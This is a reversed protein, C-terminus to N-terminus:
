RPVTPCGYGGRRSSRSEGPGNGNGPLQFILHIGTFYYYDKSKPSGRTTGKSPYVPSGGPVEGGRYSLEVAKPGKANLLDTADAYNGSVDDLYDTFLKRLGVEVGLRINDSIVFRIGGGFPIALQTLPYAPVGPYQALGEGETSLPKLYVKNGLADFTYPNFHYVALGAFFYPSWKYTDLDLTVYELNASLETVPTQFSLNRQKLDVRHNLSDAGAVKAFTLGARFNFHDSLPFGLSLGFAGKTSQYPKDVLDGVYNSLGAFVGIQPQSLATAASFLAVFSIFFRRM